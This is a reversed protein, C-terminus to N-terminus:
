DYGECDLDVIIREGCTQCTLVVEQFPLGERLVSRRWYRGLNKCLDRKDFTNAHGLSCFADITALGHDHVGRTGFAGKYKDLVQQALERVSDNSDSVVVTQLLNMVEVPYQGAKLMEGAREVANRRVRTYEHKLERALTGLINAEHLSADPSTM